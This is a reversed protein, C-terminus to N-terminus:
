ERLQAFLVLRHPRLEVRQGPLRRAQELQLAAGLEGFVHQGSKLLFHVFGADALRRREAVHRDSRRRAGGFRLDVRVRQEVHDDTSEDADHERGHDREQADHEIAANAVFPLDFLIQLQRNERRHRHEAVQAIM